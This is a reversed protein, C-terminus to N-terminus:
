LTGGRAWGQALCHSQASPVSSVMMPLPVCWLLDIVNNCFLIARWFSCLYSLYISHTWKPHCLGHLWVLISILNLSLFLWGHSSCRPFLFVKHPGPLSCFHINYSSIWSQYLQFGILLTSVLCLSTLHLLFIPGSLDLCSWMWIGLTYM